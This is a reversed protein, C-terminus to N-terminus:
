LKKWFSGVPACAMFDPRRVKGCVGAMQQRNFSDTRDRRHVTFGHAKVSVRLGLIRWTWIFM